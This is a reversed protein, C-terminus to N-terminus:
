NIKIKILLVFVNMPNVNKLSVQITNHPKRVFGHLGVDSFGGVMVLHSSTKLLLLIFFFGLLIHTKSKRRMNFCISMFCISINGFSHIQNMHILNIETQNDYSPPGLLLVIIKHSVCEIDTAYNGYFRNIPNCQMPFHKYHLTSGM